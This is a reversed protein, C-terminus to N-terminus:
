GTSDAGGERLRIRGVGLLVVGSVVLPLVSGFRPGLVTELVGAGGEGIMSRLLAGGRAEGALATVGGLAVAWFAGTPGVGLRDKWFSALTPLAVGGVFVTYALLLSAIIGQQFLAISLALLGLVVVFV